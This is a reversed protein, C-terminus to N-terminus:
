QSEEETLETKFEIPPEDESVRLKYESVECSGDSLVYVDVSRSKLVQSIDNLFPESLITIIQENENKYKVVFRWTTEDFVENMYKVHRIHKQVKVIKGKYKVATKKLNKQENLFQKRNHKDRKSLFIVDALCVAFVILAGAGVTMNKQTNQGKQSVASMVVMFEGVMSAFIGLCGLAILLRLTPNSYKAYKDEARVLEFKVDKSDMTFILSRKLFLM